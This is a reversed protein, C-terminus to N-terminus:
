DMVEVDKAELWVRAGCKLPKEPRYVLEPDGILKIRKAREVPQGSRLISFPPDSRGHKENAKVIHRNVTVRVM